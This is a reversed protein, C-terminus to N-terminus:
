GAARLPPAAGAAIGDLTALVQRGEEQVLRLAAGLDSGAPCAQELASSRDSLRMFGMMGTVSVLAHAARALADRDDPTRMCAEATALRARLDSIWNSFM